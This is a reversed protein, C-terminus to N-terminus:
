YLDYIYFVKNHFAYDTETHKLGEQYQRFFDNERLVLDNNKKVRTSGKM